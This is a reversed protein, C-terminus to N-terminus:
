EVVASSGDVSARQFDHDQKNLTRRATNTTYPWESVVKDNWEEAFFIQGIHRLHGAQSILTGNPSEEWETRVMLHVHITRGPYFGPYITTLEVTGSSSTPFGGRLYTNNTSMGPGGGRGPGGPRRPGGPPRRDPRDPKGPRDSGDPRVHKGSKDSKKSDKAGQQGRRGGPGDPPPHRDGPGKGGPPGGGGPFNLSAKEFSGYVGTANAVLLLKVHTHLSHTFLPLVYREM